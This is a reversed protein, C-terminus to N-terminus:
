LPICTFVGKGFLADPKCFYEDCNINHSIMWEDQLLPPLSGWSRGVLVHYQEMTQICWPKKDYVSDPTFGETTDRTVRGTTSPVQIVEPTAEPLRLAATSVSHLLSMTRHTTISSEKTDTHLVSLYVFGLYAFVSFSGLLACTIRSRFTCFM